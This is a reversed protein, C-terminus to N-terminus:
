ATARTEYESAFLRRCRFDAFSQIGFVSAASSRGLDAIMESPTHLTILWTKSDVGLKRETQM